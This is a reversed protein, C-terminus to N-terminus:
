RCENQVIAVFKEPTDISEVGRSWGALMKYSVQQLDAGFVLLHSLRHDGQHPFYQADAMVAMGLNEHHFSQDGYTYLAKCNGVEMTKPLPGLKNLGTTFAAGKPLVGKTVELKITAGYDGAALSWDQTLDILQDGIKLDEFTTRLSAIDGGASTVKVVKRRADSLTYLSDGVLVGPSGFGLSEGVKLIDAGWDMVDHYNWGVTDMVLDPVRKGYIDFRHRSDLYFRYAIKDNELVPGEFMVWKNQPLLGNPVEVETRTVYAGAVSDKHLPDFAYDQTKLVVQARGAVPDQVDVSANTDKQANGDGCASLLLLVLLVASLLLAAGLPWMTSAHDTKGSPRFDPKTVSM